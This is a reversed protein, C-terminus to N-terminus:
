IEHPERHLFREYWNGLPYFGAGYIEMGASRYGFIYGRELLMVLPEYISLYPLAGENRDAYEALQLYFVVNYGCVAYRELFERAEASCDELGIDERGGLAKAVNFFLPHFPKISKEDFFNAMRRLFEYGIKMGSGDREDSYYTESTLRKWDIRNIRKVAEEYYM